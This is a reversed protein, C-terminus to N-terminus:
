PLVSLRLAAVARGLAVGPGRCQTRRALPRWGGSLPAPRRCRTRVQKNVDHSDAGEQEMRSIRAKQQEVENHYM